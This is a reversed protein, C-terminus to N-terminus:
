LLYQRQIAEMKEKNEETDHDYGLLHLIGHILLFSAEKELGHGLKSAQRSATELSIVVDGIVKSDEQEFSLVDTPGDKERYQSNMKSIYKDDVLAISLEAEHDCGQGLMVKEALQILKIDLENIDIIEQMNNVLIEM